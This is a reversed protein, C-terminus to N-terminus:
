AVPRAILGMLEDACAPKALLADFGAERAKRRDEDQAYGSVAVLIATATAPDARLARAVEFGTMGPLGIDSVVAHPHLRRCLEVGEPGSRAVFAEFGLLELVERLSDAADAQDEVIVVRRSGGPRASADPATGSKPVPGTADLPLRVTFTAGHGRGASAAEVRGCHLEVLGKVVALGLGLGGKTRAPDADVQRFAQFLTPLHTPDVGVGTDSVSLVAEGSQTDLRVAVRGGRETFKVSNSFLNTVIQTLRALDGCVWVPDPPTVVEASLGAAEAGARHDEATTRVLAALDLREVSLTVKGRAIRSADLLEDVLRTLHTTQRDIMVRARGSAAADDGRLEMIQLANRIPALPNRLEHGLLALFEDKRKDAEVLRANQRTLERELNRRETIAHFVLVAGALPDGARRIPAACDDIPTETGDRAILVTHNALGAVKGERLVRDVPSETPERTEENVIRFVEALPRTVAEAQTWGTLKEAVPNLFTVRGEADTALVADGISALTVRLWERQEVAQEEARRRRQVERALEELRLNLAAFQSTAHSKPILRLLILAPADAARPRYV